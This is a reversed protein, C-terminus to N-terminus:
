AQRIRRDPRGHSSGPRAELQGPGHAQALCSLKGDNASLPPSQGATTQNGVPGRRRGRGMRPDPHDRATPDPRRVHPVAGPTPQALAKAQMLVLQRSRGRKNQDRARRDGSHIKLLDLPIIKGRQPAGPKQARRSDPELWKSGPRGSNGSPTTGPWFHGTRGPPESGIQAMTNSM